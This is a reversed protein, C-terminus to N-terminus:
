KIKKFKSLIFEEIDYWDEKNFFGLIKYIIIYATVSILGAICLTAFGSVFKTILMNLFFVILSTIVTSYIQKLHYSKKNKLIKNEVYFLMGMTPIVSILYAWAVGILGFKPLLIVLLITNIIAMVISYATIMKIRGLGLLFNSVTNWLSLIFNTIALIILVKFAKEAFNIDLWYLLVKYSYSILTITFAASVMLIIRFSRTYLNILKGSDDGGKLQSALPFIFNTLSNAVSPIRSAASGPVTYYTLNSPGIFIPIIVKDLYLLTSGAINNISTITAFKISESMHLKSWGLKISTLSELSKAKNYIYLGVIINIILQLIFILLINKYFIAIILILINYTTLSIIGVRSLIDFRQLGTLIANYTRTLSDTLVIFGAILFLVSYKQYESFQTPLLDAGWMYISFCILFGVVGIILFLTNSSYIIKQVYDKDGTGNHYAIHRTISMGLGMDLLGLLSTITGVFIYIGYEKIGLNFIVMPTIVLALLITWSFSTLGYLANRFSKERMTNKSSEM